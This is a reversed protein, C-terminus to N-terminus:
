FMVSPFLCLPKTQQQQKNYDLGWGLFCAGQGVLFCAVHGLASLCHYSSVSSVCVSCLHAIFTSVSIRNRCRM